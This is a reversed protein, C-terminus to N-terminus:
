NPSEAASAGISGRAAAEYLDVMARGFSAEDIREARGLGRAVLADRREGGGLLSLAAAAFGEIDDPDCLLGADDVVEPLSGRSSAVVPCGARMAELPPWGYGEYLSPFILVGASALAADVDEDSPDVVVRVASPRPLDDIAGRIRDDPPPGLMLLQLNPSKALMAGFCRVAGIRNKYFGNNGIHLVIPGRAGTHAGAGYSARPLPLSVIRDVSRGLLRECDLASQRSDACIMGVSALLRRSVALLARAGFGPRPVPFAGEAQLHPIMDHVTVVTRHRPLGLLHIAQSGDLLHIVDFGRRIAARPARVLDRARDGWRLSGGSVRIVEVSARSEFGQLARCLVRRYALMSGPKSDDSTSLLAVRVSM